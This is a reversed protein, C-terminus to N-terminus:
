TGSVHGEVVSTSDVVARPLVITVITGGSARPELGITGGAQATIQEAIALGLGSGTTSRVEAARYFRDFVRHVDSVAVGSGSDAVTIRILPGDAQLRLVVEPRHDVHPPTYKGANDLVVGLLRAARSAELPILMGPTGGTVTYEVHPWHRQADAAAQEAIGVLEARALAADADADLFALDILDEITAQMSDLESSIASQLVATTEDDFTRDSFLLSTNTRLTTLPTRLEHSADAVFSRQSDLAHALRGLMGNFSRALGGLEDTRHADVEVHPDATQAVDEMTTILERIPRVGARGALYGIGAAALCSVVSAIALAHVTREFTVAMATVPVGVLLARHDDVPLAVVRVQPSVATSTYIAESRRGEAVALAEPTIALPGGSASEVADGSDIVRSCAPEVVWQCEGGTFEAPDVGSALSRQLQVAERELATDQGTALQYGVVGLVVTSILIAALAVSGAVIATIRFRISRFSARTLSLRRGAGTM